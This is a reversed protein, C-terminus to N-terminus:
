QHSNREVYEFKTKDSNPFYDDVVKEGNSYILIYDDEVKQPTLVNVLMNSHFNLRFLISNADHVRYTLMGQGAINFVDFGDNTFKRKVMPYFDKVVIVDGSVNEEYGDGRPPPSSDDFMFVIDDPINKKINASFKEPNNLKFQFKVNSLQWDCGGGGILAVKNSVTDKGTDLIFPVTLRHYGDRDALGGASTIIKDTCKKSRYIIDMPLIDVDAPKVVSVTM